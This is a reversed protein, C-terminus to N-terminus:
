FNSGTDRRPYVVGLDLAQLRDNGDLTMSRTAYPDGLKFNFKNDEIFIKSKESQNQSEFTLNDLNKIKSNIRVLDGEKYNNPFRSIDVDVDVVQNLVTPDDHLARMLGARQRLGGSLGLDLAKLGSIYQEDSIVQAQETRFGVLNEMKSKRFHPLLLFFVMLFVLFISLCINVLNLKM